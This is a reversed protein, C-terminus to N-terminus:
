PLLDIETHAFTSVKERLQGTLNTCNQHYEHKHLSSCQPHFALLTSIPKKRHEDMQCTM